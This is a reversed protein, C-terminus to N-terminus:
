SQQLTEILEALREYEPESTVPISFETSSALGACRKRMRDVIEDFTGIVAFTHLTEDSIMPPMEEWRQERALVSLRKALDGLGHHEFVPRYSPTCAYFAVRARVAEARERLIVQDPGTAILSRMAVRIAAPDRGAKKAGKRMAPLMVDEIYARTCIPHPGLSDAVEGAVQCMFPNLAALHVPIEPREIPGPNFQPVVLDMRYREGEFKLPAGTQWCDWIARVARVYERMWTGAPTWDAIGFRRQIHARVQSGLGLTFRGRSLKQMSWAFMATVAPSRAFAIIVSNGLRLRRTTQAAVAITVFPDEKNESAFLGDYGLAEVRRADEGVTTLDLPQEPRRLGPDVKGLPLVTEVEM